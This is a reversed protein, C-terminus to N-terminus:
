LPKCAAVPFEPRVNSLVAPMKIEPIKVAGLVGRPGVIRGSNPQM